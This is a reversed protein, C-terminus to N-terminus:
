GNKQREVEADLMEMAGTGHRRLAERGMMAYDKTVRKQAPTLSVKNLVEMGNVMFALAYEMGRDGGILTEMEPMLVPNQDIFVLDKM